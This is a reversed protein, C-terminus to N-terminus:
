EKTPFKLIKKTQDVNDQFFEKLILGMEKMEPWWIRLILKSFILIVIPGAIIWANGVIWLWTTKFIPTCDREGPLNQYIYCSTPMANYVMVSLTLLGTLAVGFIPSNLGKKFLWWLLVVLEFVKLGVFVFPFAIYKLIM